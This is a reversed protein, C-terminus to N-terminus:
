ALDARAKTTLLLKETGHAGNEIGPLVSFSRSFFELSHLIQM